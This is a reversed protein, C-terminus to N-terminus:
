KYCQHLRGLALCEQSMSCRAAMPHVWLPLCPLVDLRWVSDVGFGIWVSNKVKIRIRDAELWGLDWDSQDRQRLLPILWCSDDLFLTPAIGFPKKGQRRPAKRVSPQAWIVWWSLPIDVRFNHLKSAEPLRKRLHSGVDESPIWGGSPNNKWNLKIICGDYRLKFIFGRGGLFQDKPSLHPTKGNCCIRAHVVTCDHSSCIWGSHSDFSKGGGQYGDRCRMTLWNRWTLEKTPYTWRVVQWSMLSDWGGPQAAGRQM